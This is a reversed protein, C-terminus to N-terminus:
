QVRDITGRFIPGVQWPAALLPLYRDAAHLTQSALAMAIDLYVKLSQESAWRGSEMISPVALGDLKAQTAAGARFCHPSVAFTLGLRKAARQLATRYQTSTCGLVLAQSAPRTALLFRLAAVSWPNSLRAVQRRNVKTGYRADGLLLTCSPKGAFAPSNEPLTCEEARLNLLEGPRLFAGFQVLFSAAIRPEGFQVAAQALALSFVWLLPVKHTPRHTFVWGRHAQFAMALSAVRPLFFRVASILQGFEARRVAGSHAYYLLATDLDEETLAAGIAYVGVTAFWTVFRHVIQQYRLLTAPRVRATLLPPLACPFPEARRGCV